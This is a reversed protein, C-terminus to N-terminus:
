VISAPNGTIVVAACTTTCGNADTLLVPYTGPALSTFTGSTSAPKNGLQFRYPAVGGTATLQVSGSNSCGANVLNSVVVSLVAPQVIVVSLAASTCGNASATLSYTGPALGTFVGTTNTQPAATGGTLTFSLGATASTVTV